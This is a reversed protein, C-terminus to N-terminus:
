DKFLKKAVDDTNIKKPAVFDGGKFEECFNNKERDSIFETNPVRCDNPLGVQYFVCGKCCHLDTGCGECITRFSIKGEITKQCKWCNMDGFYCSSSAKDLFKM